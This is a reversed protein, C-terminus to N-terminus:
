FGLRTKIEIVNFLLYFSLHNTLHYKFLIKDLLKLMKRFGELDLLKSRGVDM